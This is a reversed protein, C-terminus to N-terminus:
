ATETKFRGEWYRADAAHGDSEHKWFTVEGLLEKTQEELQVIREAAARFVAPHVKYTACPGACHEQYLGQAKETVTREHGKGTLQWSASTQTTLDETAM